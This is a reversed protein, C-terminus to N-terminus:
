AYKWCKMLLVLQSGSFNYFVRKKFGGLFSHKLLMRRQQISLKAQLQSCLSGSNCLLLKKLFSDLEKLSNSQDPDAISYSFFIGAKRRVGRGEDFITYNGSLLKIRSQLIQFDGDACFQLFSRVLKTKIKKTKSKSIDVIVKRTIPETKSKQRQFVKFTYGLFNVQKHISSTESQKLVTEIFDYSQTKKANLSLGHPLNKRIYRSISKSTELPNAVIIIDDVFREYFYVGDRETLANDFRRLVYESLTASIALGRPLGSINKASLESFLSKLLKFHSRSFGRDNELEKVVEDVDVSEYFTKLDFKFVKYDLGEQLLIKLSKVISNRNTQRAGTLRRLNKTILRLVLEHEFSQIKYVNKGKLVSQTLILNKFGDDAIKDCKGLLSEMALPATLNPFRVFDLQRIANRKVSKRHLTLDYALGMERTKAIKSDSSLM